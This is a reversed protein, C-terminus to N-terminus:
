PTQEKRQRWELMQAIEELREACSELDTVLVSGPDSSRLFPLAGVLEERARELRGLAVNRLRRHDDPVMNASM